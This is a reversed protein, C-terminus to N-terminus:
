NIQLLSAVKGVIKGRVNRLLPLDQARLLRDAKARGVLGLQVLLEVTAVTRARDGNGDAIKLAIGIGKGGEVYAMGYFGEAGIKAIFSGGAARMLANDLRGTGGIMEPHARMAAVVRQSSEREQTTGFRRDLLRAYGTAAQRLSVAFTPASCGDVGTLIAAEPAGTYLSLVRLIEMQVPHSSALYRGLPAKWFKALALMGAHKGSCNNHLVSPAMGRRSLAAAAPRYYPPHAGCQLSSERLGAKRLVSRVTDLHMKEGNHSSIIVALEKRSFGFHDLAGSAILPLAQFPKAASRLFTTAEPSGAHRLVQGRADVVAIAGYHVSEVADGRTVKVLPVHGFDIDSM